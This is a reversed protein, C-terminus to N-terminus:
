TVHIALYKARSTASQNSCGYSMWRSPARLTTCFPKPRMSRDSPRRRRSPGRHAGTTTGRHRGRTMVTTKALFLPDALQATLRAPGAPNTAHEHAPNARAREFNLASLFEVFSDAAAQHVASSWVSFVSVLAHRCCRRAQNSAHESRLASECVPQLQTPNARSAGRLWCWASGAHNTAGTRSCERLGSFIRRSM